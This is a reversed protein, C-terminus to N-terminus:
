PPGSRSSEPGTLNRRFPSPTTSAAGPFPQSTTHSLTQNGPCTGNQTLCPRDTAEGEGRGRGCPSLSFFPRERVERRHITREKVSFSVPDVDVDVRAAAGARAGQGALRAPDAAGGRGPADEAAAAAPAPRAPDRAAGPGPRARRHGRRAARRPRPRAGARRRGAATDASVILAALRGYPPWDGPRREDAESRWSRRWTAARGAGADGPARPQLDAAAGPGAGRGARRPRRGPAAAARDAGGRAPRRRGPGLDADVVGVLTLHPFHWGKAVIQTGIILDVERAEIARAAEAAAHPGTLTDSAMVLRRAEPFLARPRRPSASSAPASRRWATRRRRLGPLGAPDARRPRLPPLAAAPARPARGALRHLEPM